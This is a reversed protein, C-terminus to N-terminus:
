HWLDIDKLKNLHEIIYDPNLKELEERGRYGYTVACTRTGARRGAFIDAPGDGIMLAAEPAVGMEALAKLVPEPDPKKNPTSEGGVVAKFYKSIKFHALIKLTMAAPKNTVLGLPLGKFHELTEQVGPYLTTEDACNELYYPRFIEIARALEREEKFGTARELLTRMGDGIFGIVEKLEKEPLGLENLTFGVAAAIDAASDVLTGDM